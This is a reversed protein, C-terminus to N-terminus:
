LPPHDLGLLHTMGARYYFVQAAHKAPGFQRELESIVQADSFPRVRTYYQNYSLVNTKAVCHNAQLCRYLFQKNQSYMHHVDGFVHANEKVLQLAFNTDKLMHKPVSRLTSAYAKSSVLDLWFRKDNVFREHSQGSALLVKRCTQVADPVTAKYIDLSCIAPHQDLVAVVIDKHKCFKSAFEVLKQFFRWTHPARAATLVVEKDAFCRNHLFLADGCVRVRELVEARTYCAKELTQFYCDSFVNGPIHFLGKCCARQIDHLYAQQTYAAVCALNTQAYCGLSAFAVQHKANVYAKIVRVDDFHDVEPQFSKISTLRLYDGLNAAACVVDIEGYTSVSLVVQNHKTKQNNQNDQNDQNSEACSACSALAEWAEKLAAKKAQKPARASAKPLDHSTDVDEQGDLVKSRKSLSQEFSAYYASWDGPLLSLLLGNHQLQVRVQGFWACGLVEKLSLQLRASRTELDVDSGVYVSLNSMVHTGCGAQEVECVCTTM